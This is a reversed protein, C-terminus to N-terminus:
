AFLFLGGFLYGLNAIPDRLLSYTSSNFDSYYALSLFYCAPCKGQLHSVLTQNRRADGLPCQALPSCQGPQTHGEGWVCFPALASWKSWYVLACSSTLGAVGVFFPFILMPCQPPSQPTGFHAGSCQFGCPRTQGPITVSTGLVVKQSPRTRM